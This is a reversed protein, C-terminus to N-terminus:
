SWQVMDTRFGKLYNVLCDLNSQESVVCVLDPRYFPNHMMEAVEIGMSLSSSDPIHKFKCGTAAVKTLYTDVDACQGFVNIFRLNGLSRAKNIISNMKGLNLVENDVILAINKIINPTNM